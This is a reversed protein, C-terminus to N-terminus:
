EVRMPECRAFGDEDVINRLVDCAGSCDADVPQVEGIGCREAFVQGREPEQSRFEFRRKAPTLQGGRESAQLLAATLQPYM